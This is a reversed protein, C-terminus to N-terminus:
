KYGKIAAHVSISDLVKLGDESIEISQGLKYNCRFRTIDNSKNCYTIRITYLEGDFNLVKGIWLQYRSNNTVYDGESVLTFAFANVFFCLSLALLTLGYKFVGMSQYKM